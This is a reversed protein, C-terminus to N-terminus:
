RIILNINPPPWLGQFASVASDIHSQGNRITWLHHGPFLADIGLGSLKRMNKGYEESNSGPWNGISIYGGHYVVDGSFLMNRDDIRAFYCVCGPNHGPVVIIRFRIDGIELEDGDSVRADVTIPPFVEDRTKGTYGLLDLGLEIESGHVLLDAEAQSTISVISRSYRKGLEDRLPRLGGAHDRHAHTILAHTIRSADLGDSAVHELIDAIGTGDGTDILVLGAGTDVLYVHCDGQGSFGFEAGGVFFVSDTIKM